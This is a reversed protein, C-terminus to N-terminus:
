NNSHRSDLCVSDDSDILFWMMSFTLSFYSDLSLSLTYSNDLSPQQISSISFVRWEGLTMHTGPLDSYTRSYIVVRVWVISTPYRAMLIPYKRYRTNLLRWEKLIDYETITSCFFYNLFTRVIPYKKQGSDSFRDVGSGSYATALENVAAACCEVNGWHSMLALM